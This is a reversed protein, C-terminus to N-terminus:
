FQLRMDGQLVERVRGEVQVTTGDCFARLAIPSGTGKSPVVRRVKISRLLAQGPALLRHHHLCRSRHLRVERRQIKRKACRLRFLSRAGSGTGEGAPAFPVCVVPHGARGSRKKLSSSM